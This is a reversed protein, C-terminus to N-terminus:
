FSPAFAPDNPHVHGKKFLCQHLWIPRTDCRDSRDHQSIDLKDQALPKPISTQSKPNVDGDEECHAAEYGSYEFARKFNFNKSSAFTKSIVCADGELVRGQIPTRNRHKAVMSEAKLLVQLVSQCAKRGLGTSRNLEYDTPRSLFKLRCYSEMLELIEAPTCRSGRFSSWHLVNFYRHCKRCCMYVHQRASRKQVQSSVLSGRGRCHPCQKPKEVAGYELLKQWAAESKDFCRRQELVAERKVLAVRRDPTGTYTSRARVRHSGDKRLPRQKSEKQSKTKLADALKSRLQRIVRAAETGCTEVRHGTNGCAVCRHPRQKEGNRGRVLKRAM